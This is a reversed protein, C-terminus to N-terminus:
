QTNQQQKPQNIFAAMDDEVDQDMLLDDDAGDNLLMDQDNEELLELRNDGGAGGQYFNLSGTQKQQQMEEAEPDIMEKGHKELFLRLEENVQDQSLGKLGKSASAGSGGPGKDKLREAYRLSNLTHNASSMGPCICTLM